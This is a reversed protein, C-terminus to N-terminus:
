PPNSAYAARNGLLPRPRDRAGDPARRGQGVGVGVEWEGTWQGQRKGQISVRAWVGVGVGVRDRVGVGVLHEEAEEHRVLLGRQGALEIAHHLDSVCRADLRRELGLGPGPGVGLGSGLGLEVGSGSGLGLESGLGLGLEPWADLRREGEAAKARGRAM